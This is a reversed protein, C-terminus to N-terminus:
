PRFQCHACISLSPLPLRVQNDADAMAQISEYDDEALETAVETTTGHASADDDLSNEIKREVRRDDEQDDSPPAKRKARIAISPSDLGDLYRSCPCITRTTRRVGAIAVSPSTLSPLVLGTGSATGSPFPIAEDADFTWTM